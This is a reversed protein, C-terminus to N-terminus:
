RISISYPLWDSQLLQSQSHTSKQQVGNYSHSQLQLYHLVVNVNLFIYSRISDLVSFQIRQRWRYSSIRFHEIPTGGAGVNHVLHIRTLSLTKKTRTRLMESQGAGLTHHFCLEFQLWSSICILVFLFFKKEVQNHSSNFDFYQQSM